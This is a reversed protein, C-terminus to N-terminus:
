DGIFSLQLGNGGFYLSCANKERAELDHGNKYARPLYEFVLKIAKEALADSFILQKIQFM